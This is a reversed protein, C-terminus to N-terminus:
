FANWLDSIRVFFSDRFVSTNLLMFMILSFGLPVAACAGQVFPFMIIMAFIYQLKCKLVNTGMAVTCKKVCTVCVDHM